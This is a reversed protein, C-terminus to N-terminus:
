IFDCTIAGAKKLAKHVSELTVENFNSGIKEAGRLIVKPFIFVKRNAVKCFAFRFYASLFEHYQKAGGVEGKYRILDVKTNPEAMSNLEEGVSLLRKKNATSIYLLPKLVITKKGSSFKISNEDIEIFVKTLALIYFTAWLTVLLGASIFISIIEKLFSFDM